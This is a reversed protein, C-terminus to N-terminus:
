LKRLLSHGLGHGHFQLALLHINSLQQLQETVEFYFKIDAVGEHWAM